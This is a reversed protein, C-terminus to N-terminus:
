HQEEIHATSFTRTRGGEATDAPPLTVHGTHMVSCNWDQWRIPLDDLHTGKAPEISGDPRIQFQYWVIDWAVTLVVERDTPSRPVVSARPAGLTRFLGALMRAHETSNFCALAVPVAAAGVPTSRLNAAVVSQRRNRSRSMLKGLGSARSAQQQTLEEPTSPRPQLGYRHAAPACLECVDFPGEGQHTFFGLSQEGMLLTRGCVRCRVVERSTAGFQAVVHAAASGTSRATGANPTRSRRRRSLPRHNM